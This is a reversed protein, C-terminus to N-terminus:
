AGGAIIEGCIPYIKTYSYSDQRTFANSKQMEVKKNLTKMKGTEPNKKVYDYVGSKAVFNEGFIVLSKKESVPYDIVYDYADNLLSVKRANLQAFAKEGYPEYPYFVPYHYTDNILLINKSGLILVFGDFWSRVNKFELVMERVEDIRRAKKSLTLEVLFHYPDANYQWWELVEGELDVADLVKEIAYPTGKYRHLEVASNILKIKQERTEALSLGERWTIHKEWLLHDLTADDLNELHMTYNIKEAWVLMEDLSKQLSKSLNVVKEDQLLNNPIERLLTNQKLDIM